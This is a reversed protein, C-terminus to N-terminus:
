DIEFDQGAMKTKRRMKQEMQMRLGKKDNIRDM